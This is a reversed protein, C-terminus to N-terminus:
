PGASRLEHVAAEIGRPHKFIFSGAVLASAGAEVCARATDADIGGDVMVQKSTLNLKTELLISSCLPKTVAM